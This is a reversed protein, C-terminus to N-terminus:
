HVSHLPGTNGTDYKAQRWKEEPVSLFADAIQPDFQTGRFREIEDFAARFSQGRRYPRDSTIADLTDAISFIRAELPIEEARLGYPYGSGDYSEHHFLVVRSAKHLSQFEEVMEYGLLPHEKIIEREKETLPGAKRLISEPIGIKGIDHLLAGREINVSFERDDIGLARTLVLTYRAVLQSHGVADENGDTAAILYLLNSHLFARDEELHRKSTYADGPVNNSHQECIDRLINKVSFIKRTLNLSALRLDATQARYEKCCLDSLLYAEERGGQTEYQTQLIATGTGNWALGPYYSTRMGQEDEIFLIKQRKPIAKRETARIEFDDWNQKMKRGYIYM